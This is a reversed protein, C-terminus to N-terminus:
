VAARLAGASLGAAAIELYTAADAFRQMEALLLGLNYAPLAPEPDLEVARRLHQEAEENRGQANLLTTRKGAKVFPACDTGGIPNMMRTYEVGAARMASLLSLTGVVNNRYYKEPDAM